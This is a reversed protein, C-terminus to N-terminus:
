VDGGYAERFRERARYLRTKVAGESIGMIESVQRVSYGEVCYLILPTRYKLPLDSLAQQVAEREAFPANWDAETLSPADASLLPLWGILKRRRLVDYATNTAIRYLWARHNADEPLRDLHRYAKVFVDQAVEQARDGDGLLRYLYNLIPRQYTAFLREFEADVAARQDAKM